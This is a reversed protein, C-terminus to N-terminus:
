PNGDATEQTKGAPAPKPRIAAAEETIDIGVPCWTICRGCGVCGSTGFQDIWHALKHTMWQRYRARTSARVAGGHIYSFDATFCSDWRQERTAERGALDTHDSVTTCFCTPCVMTCNACALCRGAVDDWRPHEPNEQLREKLGATDMHRGMSAATHAVVSEAARVADPGAPRSPLGALVRAGAESGAEALFAHRTGDILETLAVDFGARARPGTGMSACFCTGAATGCNVAVIFAGRRRAAYRHDQHPGSLFVRDQIAIAHLECARVGIFAFPKASLPEPQVAFGDRDRMARFLREVPPHLFRKWSHPGVAYGFLAADTRRQLRYGGADQRDGWGVPLDELRRIRDYIIVGDQVTPGVVDFDGAHLVDLLAQLGHPDLLMTAGTTGQAAAEESAL